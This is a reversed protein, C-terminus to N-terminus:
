NSCQVYTLLNSFQIQDFKNTAANKELLKYFEILSSVYDNIADLENNGNGYVLFIDDSVVFTNDEDLEINIRIPQIILLKDIQGMLFTGIKIEQIPTKIPITQPHINIRKAIEPFVDFSLSDPVAPIYTYPMTM